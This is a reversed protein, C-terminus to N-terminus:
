HVTARIRKDDATIRSLPFESEWCTDSSENTLQVRIGTTDLPLPLAPDSLNAGQGSISLKAKSAGGDRLRMLRIGDHGGAGDDYIFGSQVARWATASPPVDGSFLLAPKASTERFVCLRYATSVTPDGFDTKSTAAGKGWTWLLKDQADSASNKYGFHSKAAARCGTRLDPAVGPDAYTVTVVAYTGGADSGLGACNTTTIVLGNNAGKVYATPDITPLVAPANNPFCSCTAAATTAYTGIPVDNLAVNHQPEFCDEGPQFEINVRTVDGVADDATDTWHFGYGFATNCTYRTVGCAFPLDDLQNVAIAYQKECGGHGPAYGPPCNSCTGTSPDCTGPRYCTPAACIVPDSGVCQGTECQDTQTCANADNCATGDPAPPHICLGVGNCEDITCINGDDPCPAGGARPPHSCFGMGDCADATCPLGDDPCALGAPAPPHACTGMGDCQDSTCIEGDDPCPTGMPVPDCAGAMEDCTPACTNFACPDGDHFVCSGDFCEDPGNCFVGDDCPAFDDNPHTCSGTGDCQDSTCANGDDTCPTGAVAACGKAAENCVNNCEAGGACPDIGTHISCLGASCTDTGNCFLGDDCASGDPLPSCVSPQGACSYCPEVRCAPDCGDGSMTNGDDCEEGPGLVGDGCGTADAYATIAGAKSPSFVIYWTVTTSQGNGLTGYNIALDIGIDAEAGNPDSPSAIIAYPNTNSFGSADVVRLASPSGFGLTLGSIPGSAVILDNPVQASVVDNDTEFTAGADQDPDTNDLTAVQTMPAGSSNTITDTIAIFQGADDFSVLRTFTLGAFPQGTITASNTTGSSTNTVTPGVAWGVGNTRFSSGNTAVTYNYVPTGPVWFDVGTAGGTGAANYKAGSASGDAMFRGPNVSTDIPLQIYNGNLFITAAAPRALLTGLSLLAVFLVAPARRQTPVGRHFRDGPLV